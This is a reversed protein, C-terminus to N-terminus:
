KVVVVAIDHERTQPNMDIGVIRVVREVEQGLITRRITRIDGLALRRMDIASELLRFTFREVAWEPADHLQNAMSKLVNLDTTQQTGIIRTGGLGIGSVERATAVDQKGFGSSSGSKSASAVPRSAYVGSGGVVISSKIGNAYRLSYGANTFHQEEQWVEETRRDTGQRETWLLSTETFADNVTYSWGWEWNCLKALAELVDLGYNFRVEFQAPPGDIVQGYRLMLPPEARQEMDRFLDRIIRGSATNYTQNKMTRAGYSSAALRWAHDALHVTAHPDAHSEDFGSVFGVWPLVGDSRRIRVMAPENPLLSTLFKAINPSQKSLLFSATQVGRVKFGYRLAPVVEVIEPGHPQHPSCFEVYTLSEEGLSYYVTITISDVSVTPAGAIRACQYIVGFGSDNVEDPTLTVGWTDQSDGSTIVTDGSTVINVATKAKNQSQQVTGAVVLRIDWDRAATVDAKEEIKVVVGRVVADAPLTFGFNTAKLYHSKNGPAVIAATAYSNDSVAANGPNAWAVNGNTADDVITGPTKPGQVGM